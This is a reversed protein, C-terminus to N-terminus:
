GRNAGGDSTMDSVVSYILGSLRGLPSYLVIPNFCLIHSLRLFALLNPALTTWRQLLTM